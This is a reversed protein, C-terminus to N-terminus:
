PETGDCGNMEVFEKRQRDVKERATSPITKFPHDCNALILQRTKEDLRYNQQTNNPTLINEAM